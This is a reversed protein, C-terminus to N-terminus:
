GLEEALRVLGPDVVRYSVIRVDLFVRAASRVQVSGKAALPKRLRCSQAMPTLGSVLRNAPHPRPGAM